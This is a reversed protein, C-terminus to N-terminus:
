SSQAMHSRGLDPIWGLNGVYAPLNKVVSGGPFGETINELKRCAYGFISGRVRQPTQAFSPVTPGLCTVGPKFLRM